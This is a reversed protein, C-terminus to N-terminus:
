CTYPRPYGFLANLVSWGQEAYCDAPEEGCVGNINCCRGWKGSCRMGETGGCTGDNSWKTGAPQNNDQKWIDCDGQQCSFLGCFADGTGCRGAFSCCTGWRGTCQRNGYFQGCSGDTSYINDGICDGEYCIGPACDEASNGCTWTDSNCCQKETGLCTANKHPPGCRGDFARLPEIFGAVCYETQPKINSCNKNLGPNLVFFDDHPLQYYETLIECTYRTVVAPSVTSYRCNIEGPNVNITTVEAPWFDDPDDAAAIDTSSLSDRRFPKCYNM